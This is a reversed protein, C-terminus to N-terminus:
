ALYGYFIARGASMVREAVREGGTVSTHGVAAELVQWIVMAALGIAVLTLLLTGLRQGVLLRFAGDQDGAAPATGSAIRLAIWAVLLHTLGFGVLGMRTLAELVPHHKARRAITAASTV